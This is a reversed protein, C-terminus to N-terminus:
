ARGLPRRGRLGRRASPGVRREGRRPRDQRLLGAPLVPTGGRGLTGRVRARDMRDDRRRGRRVDAPRAGPERAPGEGPRARLARLGRPAPRLGRRAPARVARARLVRGRGRRRPPAARRLHVADRAGADPHRGRRLRLVGARRCPDRGRIGRARVARGGGPEGGHAAVGVARLGRLRRLRAPGRRPRHEGLHLRRGRPRLPRLRGDERLHPSAPRPRPHHRRSAPRLGHAVADEIVTWPCRAASGIRTSWSHSPAQAVGIAYAFQVECEDALGSPSWTRPSGARPTPAPATSRPATRAALLRRRRPPRM